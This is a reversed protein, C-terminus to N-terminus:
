FFIFHSPTSVNLAKNIALLFKFFIKGQQFLDFFHRIILCM